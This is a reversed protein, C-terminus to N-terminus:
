NNTDISKAIAIATIAVKEIIYTNYPLYIIIYNNNITIAAM